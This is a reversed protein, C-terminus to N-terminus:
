PIFIKKEPLTEIAKPTRAEVVDKFQNETIEKWNLLTVQSQLQESITELTRAIPFEDADSQMPADGFGMGRGNSSFTYSVFYYKM